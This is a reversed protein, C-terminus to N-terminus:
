ATQEFSLQVLCAAPSQDFGFRIETAGLRMAYVFRELPSIDRPAEILEAEPYRAIIADRGHCHGALSMTLLTPTEGDPRLAERLAIDSATLGDEIPVDALRYNRHYRSEDQAHAPQRLLGAVRDHSLDPLTAVTAIFDFLSM